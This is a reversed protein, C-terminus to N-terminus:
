SSVFEAERVKTVEWLRGFCNGCRAKFNRDIYQQTDETRTDEHPEFSSAFDTPALQCERCELSVIIM